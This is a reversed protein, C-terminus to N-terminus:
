SQQRALREASRKRAPQLPDAGSGAGKGPVWEWGQIKAATAALRGDDPEVDLYFLAEDPHKDDGGWRVVGDCEALIDRIVVTQQPFFGGQAGSPYHGPRIQVATGSAQNSEALGKRVTSPHRWGTVDGRRLEDIEYHFRRIVHVLVTEVDGMRIQVGDVPTGPVPRTYVHGHDDAIKEMEWGNTSPTGSLVRKNREQAKRIAERIKDPGPQTTAAHVPSTLTGAAVATGAALFVARRLATRRSINVTM